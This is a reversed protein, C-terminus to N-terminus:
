ESTPGFSISGHIDRAQVSPGRVTGSIINTNRQDSARVLHEAAASWERLVVAFEPDADARGTLAQVLGTVDVQGDPDEAAAALIPGSERRGLRRVIGVLAEWSEKGAEGLAGGVLGSVVFTLQSLLAPDM